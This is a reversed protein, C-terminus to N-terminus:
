ARMNQINDTIRSRRQRASNGTGHNGHDNRLDQAQGLVTLSTTKLFGEMEDVPPSRNLSNAACELVTGFPLQHGFKVPGDV